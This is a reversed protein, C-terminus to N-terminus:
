EEYGFVHITGSANSSVPILTFGDYSTSLSHTSAFDLLRAGSISSANNGRSATPEALFPGYIHLAQGDGATGFIGFGM